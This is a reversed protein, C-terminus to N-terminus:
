RAATTRYFGNKTRVCHKVYALLGYARRYDERLLGVALNCGGCLLGRVTGFTHCHDVCAKHAGRVGSGPQATDRGCGPNACKRKQQEWLATVEALGIGYNRRYQNDRSSPRAM